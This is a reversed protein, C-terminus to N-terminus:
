LCRCHAFGVIVVIRVLLRRVAVGVTAAAAILLLVLRLRGGRCVLLLVLLRRRGLLWVRGLIAVAVHGGLAVAAVLLGREFILELDGLWLPVIEPSADEEDQEHGAIDDNRTDRKLSVSGILAISSRPNVTVPIVKRQVRTGNDQEHKHESNRKDQRIRVNPHRPQKRLLKDPDSANEVDAPRKSSSDKIKPAPVPRSSNYEEDKSKEHSETEPRPNRSNGERRQHKSSGDVNALLIAMDVKGTQNSSDDGRCHRSPERDSKDCDVDLVLRRVIVGRAGIAAATFALYNTEDDEDRKGHVPEGLPELVGDVGRNGADVARPVEVGVVEGLVGSASRRLSGQGVTKSGDSQTAQQDSNDLEDTLDAGSSTVLLSRIATHQSVSQETANAAKKTDQLPSNLEDVSISEAV